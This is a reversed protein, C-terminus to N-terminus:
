PNPETQTDRHVMEEIVFLDSFPSSDGPALTVMQQSGNLTPALFWIAARDLAIIKTMIGNSHPSVMVLVITIFSLM